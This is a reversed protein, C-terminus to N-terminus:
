AAPKALITQYAECPTWCNPCKKALIQQRLNQAKESSLIPSLEYDTDRISGLKQDWITCPYVEGKESLYCSAMLAACSTPSIGTNLYEIAKRQYTREVFNLPNFSLGQQQQWSNIAAILVARNKELFKTSDMKANGYYHSSVQPLNVHMNSIDFNPINEQISKLTNSILDANQPFLTYGIMPKLNPIKSLETYVHMAKNFNGPIGRLRDHVEPPGDVSVSVVFYPIGIKSLYEANNIVQDPNLSNTPFHVMLLQESHEYFSEVLNKFDHRDSPEGGTFNVWSFFPNRKVFETIEDLSLEDKPNEKWINCYGCRSQCKKTVVFNLKYPNELEGFQSLFIKKSFNLWPKIM